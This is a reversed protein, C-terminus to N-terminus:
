RDRCIVKLRRRTRRFDELDDLSNNLDRCFFRFYRAGGQRRPDISQHFYEFLTETRNQSLIQLLDALRCALAHYLGIDVTESLVRKLISRLERYAAPHAGVAEDAHILAADLRKQLVAIDTAPSDHQLEM